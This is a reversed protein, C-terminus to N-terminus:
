DKYSAWEAGGSIVWRLQEKLEELKEAEQREANERVKIQRAKEKATHLSMSSKWWPRAQEPVWAPISDDTKLARREIELTLVSHKVLLEDDTLLNTELRAIFDQRELQQTGEHGQISVDIGDDRTFIVTPLNLCEM